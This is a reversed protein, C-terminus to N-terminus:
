LLHKVFDFICLLFTTLFEGLFTTLCCIELFRHNNQPWFYRDIGFLFVYDRDFHIFPYREPTTMTGMTTLNEPVIVQFNNHDPERVM